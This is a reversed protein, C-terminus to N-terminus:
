KYFLLCTKSAAMGGKKNEEKDEAKGTLFQGPIIHSSYSSTNTPLLNETKRPQLSFPFSVETFIVSQTIIKIIYKDFCCLVRNM